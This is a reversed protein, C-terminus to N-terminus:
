SFAAETQEFAADAITRTVGDDRVLQTVVLKQELHNTIWTASIAVDGEAEGGVVVEHAPVQRRRAEVVLGAGLHNSLGAVILPAPVDLQLIRQLVNFVKLASAM